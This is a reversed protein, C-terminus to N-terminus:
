LIMDDAVLYLKVEEKGFRIGTISKNQGIANILRELIINILLLSLSGRQRTGSKLPFAELIEGKLFSAKSSLYTYKIMNIFYWEIGIKELRKIFFLHQIKNLAERADVSIIM